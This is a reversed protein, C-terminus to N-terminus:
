EEMGALGQYSNGDAMQWVKLNVCKHKKGVTSEVVTCCLREMTKRGKKLARTQQSGAWFRPLFGLGPWYTSPCSGTTSVLIATSGTYERMLRGTREATGEKGLGAATQHLNERSCLVLAALETVESIVLHEPFAISRDVISFTSSGTPLAASLKFHSWSKVIHGHDTQFIPSSTRGLLHKPPLTRRCRM